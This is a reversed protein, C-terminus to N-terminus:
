RSLLKCTLGVLNEYVPYILGNYETTRVRSKIYVGKNYQGLGIIVLGAASTQRLRIAKCCNVSGTETDTFFLLLINLRVYNWSSRM